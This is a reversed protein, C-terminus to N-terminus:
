QASWLAFVIRLMIFIRNYIVRRSGAPLRHWRRSGQTKRRGKNQGHVRGGVVIIYKGLGKRKKKKKKEGRLFDNNTGRALWRRDDHSLYLVHM